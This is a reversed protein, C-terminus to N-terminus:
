DQWVTRVDYESVTCDRLSVLEPRDDFYGKRAFIRVRDFILREVGSIDLLATGRERAASEPHPKEHEKDYINVHHLVLDTVWGPNAFIRVGGKCHTHYNDITVRRIKEQQAYMQLPYGVDDGTINSIHVDSIAVGGGGQWGTMFTMGEGSHALVLDSINIHHIVGVGVGIRLSCTSNSLVCNSITVYECAKRPNSLRQADARIAICDDGTDILCDSVTVFSCADIDIGDSNAHRKDNLITLGQAKVYDCGHFFLNWCSSNCLTLDRVAIRRCEVFCILQGPRLPAGDETEYYGQPWVYNSDGRLPGGYFADGCGEITGDGTLSLNEQGVAIILHKGCWKEPPCDYNQPYAATENYDALNESAKITANHELHLEVGSKLWITGTVYRGAPVAVVGGGGASCDDIARQIAATNLTKGDGAAGYDLINVQM